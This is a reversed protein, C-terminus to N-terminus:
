PSNILRYELRFLLFLLVTLVGHWRYALMHTGNSCRFWGIKIFLQYWLWAVPLAGVEVVGVGFKYNGLVAFSFV